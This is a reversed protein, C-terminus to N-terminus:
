ANFFNTVAAQKPQGNSTFLGFFLPPIAAINDALSFWCVSDVLPKTKFFAFLAQLNAAQQPASVGQADTHWGAETVYVKATAPLNHATM